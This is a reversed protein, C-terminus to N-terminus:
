TAPRGTHRAATEQRNQLRELRRKAAVKIVHLPVPMEMVVQLDAIARDVAGDAALILARNYLAMAKVDDPAGPLEIASTYAIMAGKSDKMEGCALGKKYRSMADSRVSRPWLWHNFVNMRTGRKGDVPQVKQYRIRELAHRISM